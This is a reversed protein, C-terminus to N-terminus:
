GEGSRKDAGNRRRHEGVHESKQRAERRAEPAGRHGGTIIPLRLLLCLFSSPISILLQENPTGEVEICSDLFVFSPIPYAGVVRGGGRVDGGGRIIVVHTRVPHWDRAAAKTDGTAKKM